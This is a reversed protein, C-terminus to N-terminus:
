CKSTWALSLSLRQSQLNSPAMTQVCPPPLTPECSNMHLIICCNIFLLFLSHKVHEHSRKGWGTNLYHLCINVKILFELLGM